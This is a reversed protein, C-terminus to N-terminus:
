GNGLMGDGHFVSGFGALLSWVCVIIVESPFDSFLNIFQQFRLKDILYLMNLPHTGYHYDWLLISLQSYTNVEFLDISCGDAIVIREGDGVM